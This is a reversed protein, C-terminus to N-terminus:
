LTIKKVSTSSTNESSSESTNESSSSSINESSSSSTSENSSSSENSNESTEKKEEPVDLINPSPAALESSSIAANPHWEPSQSQSNAEYVPSMNQQIIPPTESSPTFQPQLTEVNGYDPVNSPSSMLEISDKALMIISGNSLKVQCFNGQIDVIAASEGIYKGKVIKIKSGISMEQTSYASSETNLDAETIPSPLV